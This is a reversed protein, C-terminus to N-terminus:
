ATEQLEKELEARAENRIQELRALTASIDAPEEDPQEPEPTFLDPATM